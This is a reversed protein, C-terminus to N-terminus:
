QGQNSQKGGRLSSQDKMAAANADDRDYVRVPPTADALDARQYYHSNSSDTVELREIMM